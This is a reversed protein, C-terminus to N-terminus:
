AGNRMCIFWDLAIGLATHQALGALISRCYFALMGWLVAAIVSLFLELSPRGAHLLSSALVQILVANVPGVSDRLGFQLFGRFHFEWGLYFLVYTCAHFAFLRTSMDQRNIPYYERIAPIMSGIYAVLVFLPVLMLLALTTQKRLGLSVGYDVLRERFVLKVIGAPLVGLLLFCAAFSYVAATVGENGWLTWLSALHRRYFDPSGFEWWALMLVTSSVLIVTPKWQKGRFSNTVADMVEPEILNGLPRLPRQGTNRPATM